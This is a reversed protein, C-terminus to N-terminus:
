QNAEKQLEDLITQEATESQSYDLNDKSDLLHSCNIEKLPVGAQLQQTLSYEQMEIPHKKLYEDPTSSIMTRPSDDNDGIVDVIRTPTQYFVSHKRKRFSM